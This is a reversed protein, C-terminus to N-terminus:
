GTTTRTRTRLSSSSLASTVDDLRGDGDSDGFCAETQTGGFIPCTDEDNAGDGDRDDDSSEPGSVWPSADEADPFGDGDTDGACVDGVGDRNDDKQEPNSLWPCNDCADDRGDGDSDFPRSAIWPCPDDADPLGDGDRDGTRGEHESM